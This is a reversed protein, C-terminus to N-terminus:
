QTKQIKKLLEMYKDHWKKGGMKPYLKQIVIIDAEAQKLTKARQEGGRRLALKYRCLALNYRAEHFTDEFQPNNALRRSLQGWGWIEKYKESGMIALTFFSAAREADKEKDGWEQYLYAAEVQAEVMMPRKQLLEVLLKLAPSFEGLRRHCRALRVTVRLDADQPADFESDGTKLRERIREYTKKAKQYYEVAQAPPTGTGPDLGEALNTFTDAVWFLANFKVGKARESIRDLFLEFGKSVSAVEAAKGEERLRELQEKLDLGLKIYIQTLLKGVEADGGKRVAAELRNMTEEAKDLQRTAVYTRLAAHYTEIDFYPRQAAAHANSVLALPGIKPAELWQQAMEIQNTEVAIQALSLVAEALSPPVEGGEEVAKRMRQVGDTLIKQAQSALQALQGKDPRQEPALRMAQKYSSWLARGAEAEAEGRKPADLPIRGLYELAKELNRERVASRILVLGALEGEPDAAWQKATYEAVAIMRETEFTNDGEPSDAADRALREWAAIALRASSKAVASSPYRRALFESLVAVEYYEGTTWYLYALHHRIANLDDKVNRPALELALRYYKIAEACAALHEKELRQVAETNNTERAEQLEGELAVVRNLIARARDQAEAFTTPEGLKGEEGVFEKAQLGTAARQQFESGGGHRRVYEFADRALKLYARRRKEADKDKEDRKMGRAVELAAEAAICQIALGEPSALEAPRAHAEWTRYVDVAQAHRKLKKDTLTELALLLTKNKLARFTDPEDPGELLEEFIQLAKQHQGLEKHCRGQFMRAYGGALLTGYNKHFEEYKSAAELLHKEREKSGEPYTQAVEYIGHAVALRADLFDRRLQDRAEIEKKQEPPIVKPFKELQQRASAELALFIKQAEAYLQRAEEALKERDAATRNPQAAQEMKIKGREVLVNALQRRTSPALPHQPQAALFADFREKARGLRQERAGLSREIRAWEIWTTGAEYDILRKFDESLRPSRRALELYDLAVDYYGRVRLRDLFARAQEDSQGLAMGGGVLWGLLGV